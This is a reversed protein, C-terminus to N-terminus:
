VDVVDDTYMFSLMASAYSTEMEALFGEYEDDDLELAEFVDAMEQPSLFRYISQRIYPGVKEYFQAQDFPHLALFHERFSEILGEKLDQLLLEENAINQANQEMM